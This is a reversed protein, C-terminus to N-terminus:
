WVESEHLWDEVAPNYFWRDGPSGGRQYFMWGAPDYWYSWPYADANTWMWQSLSFDFTYFSGTSNGSYYCWGHEYHYYWGGTSEVFWGFWPIHLLGSAHREAHEWLDGYSSTSQQTLHHEQGGIVLTAQRMQTGHYPQVEIVVSANGDGSHPTASAWSPLGSLDWPRNARVNISYTTGSAPVTQSLPSIAVFPTAAQVLNHIRDGIFLVGSRSITNTNESVSVTLLANGTGSMPSVSVWDLSELVSWAALTNVALSYTQASASLERVQPDIPLPLDSVITLQVGASYQTGNANVVTAHYTGADAVSVSSIHLQLASAGGLPEGNQYWQISLTPDAPNAVAIAFTAADGIHRELSVPHATIVPLNNQADVAVQIEPGYVVGFSNEARLQYRGEHSTTLGAIQLRAGHQGALAMGNHQWQLQVPGPGSIVPDLMLVGGAAITVPEAEMSVHPRNDAIRAFSGKRMQLGTVEAQARAGSNGRLRLELQVQQGAFEALSIGGSQLFGDFSFATGSYSWLVQGDAIAELRDGPGCDSLSFAFSWVAGEAPVTFPFGIAADSGTRLSIEGSEHVVVNGESVLSGSRMVSLLNFDLLQSRAFISNKWGLLRSEEAPWGIFTWDNADADEVETVSDSFFKIPGGHGPYNTSRGLFRGEWFISNVNANRARSSLFWNSTGSGTANMYTTFYNDLRLLRQNSWGVTTNSILGEILAVGLFSNRERSQAPMYPDMLTIQIRTNEAGPQLLQWAAGYAVWTGASHAVFHVDGLRGSQSLTRLYDGLLLGHMYGMAAARSGGEAFDWAEDGGAFGGSNADAAWNYGAMLWGSGAIEQSIEEALQRFNGGAYLNDQSIRSWGHLLIIVDKRGHSDLGSRQSSLPEILRDAVDQSYFSPRRFVRFQPPNLGFAEGERVLGYQRLVSESFTLDAFSSMHLNPLIRRFSVRPPESLLSTPIYIGASPRGSPYGVIFFTREFGVSAPNGDFSGAGFGDREGDLVPVEIDSFRWRNGIPRPIGSRAGRTGITMGELVPSFELQQPDSGSPKLVLSTMISQQQQVRTPLGSGMIAPEIRRVLHTTSVGLEPSVIRNGDQTIGVATIASVGTGSYLPMWYGTFKMPDHLSKTGVSVLQDDVLFEVEVIEESAVTAELRVLRLVEAGNADIGAVAAVSVDGFDEWGEIEIVVDGYNTSLHVEVIEGLPVPRNLEVDLEFQNRYLGAGLQSFVAELWADSSAGIYFGGVDNALNRMADVAGQSPSGSTDSAPGLGVSVLVVRENRLNSVASSRYGSDGSDPQGDAFLFLVLQEDPDGDLAKRQAMRSVVEATSRFMPTGGSAVLSNLSDRLLQKSSTFDVLQRTVSLGSSSGPFEYVAAIEGDPMEDIFARGATVRQRGPDNSQMSGSGDFLLATRTRVRIEDTALTASISEIVYDPPVVTASFIELPDMASQPVAMASQPALNVDGGARSGSPGQLVSFAAVLMRLNRGEGSYRILRVAQVPEVERLDVVFEPSEAQHVFLPIGSGSVGYPITSCLVILFLLRQSIVIGLQGAKSVFFACALSKPSPPQKTLTM